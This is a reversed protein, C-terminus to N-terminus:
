HCLRATALRLRGARRGAVPADALSFRRYVSLRFAKVVQESIPAVSDAAVKRALAGIEKFQDAVADIRRRAFEGQLEVYEAVGAVGLTSEVFDFNAEVNARLTDLAKANIAAAGARAAACSTEMAAASEDAALKANVCAERIQALSKEITARLTGQIQILSAAPDAFRKPAESYAPPAAPEAAPAALEAVAAAPTKKSATAM